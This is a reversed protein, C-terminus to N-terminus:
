KEDLLFFSWVNCKFHCNFSKGACFDPFLNHEEAVGGAIRRSLASYKGKM